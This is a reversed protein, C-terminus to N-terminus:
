ALHEPTYPFGNLLLGLGFIIATRKLVQMAISSRSEGSNLRKTISFGLSVGVIFVFFPFVLDTLTLGSWAAHDLQTYAVDSGPSNVLIMFAITIGRFVDLSQLRNSPENM